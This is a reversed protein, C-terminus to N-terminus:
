GGEGGARKLCRVTPKIVCMWVMGRWSVKCLGQYGRGEAPSSWKLRVAGLQKWFGGLGRLYFRSLGAGGRFSLIGVSDFM